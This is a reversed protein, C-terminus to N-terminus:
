TRCSSHLYFSNLAPATDTKLLRRQVFVHRRYSLAALWSVLEAREGNEIMLIPLSRNITSVAGHLVSLERGEVDIKIFDPALAFDDLCRVEVLWDAVQIPSTAAFKFGATLYADVMLDTRMPEMTAFQDLTVGDCSPIYLHFLGPRDGLACNHVTIRNSRRAIKALHGYAIPNPEFAVIRPAKLVACLSGVSQGFNAGVDICLAGRTLAFTPLANFDQEHVIGLRRRGDAALRQQWHYLNPYRNAHARYLRKATRAVKM